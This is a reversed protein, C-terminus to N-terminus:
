PSNNEEKHVFDLFSAARLVDLSWECELAQLICRFCAICLLEILQGFFRGADLFEM